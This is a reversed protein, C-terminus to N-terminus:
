LCKSKLMKRKSILKKSCESALIQPTRITRHNWRPSPLEVLTQQFQNFCTPALCECYTQLALDVAAGLVMAFYLFPKGIEGTNSRLLGSLRSFLCCCLKAAVSWAASPWPVNTVPLSTPYWIKALLFPQSLAYPHNGINEDIKWGVQSSSNKPPSVTHMRKNTATDVPKETRLSWWSTLEKGPELGQSSSAPVRTALPPSSCRRWGGPLVTNRVWSGSTKQTTTKRWHHAVNKELSCTFSCWIAPASAPLLALGLAVREELPVLLAANRPRPLPCSLRPTWSKWTGLHDFIPAMRWLFVPIICILYISPSVSLLLSLFIALRLHLSPFLSLSLHLSLSIFLHLYINAQM